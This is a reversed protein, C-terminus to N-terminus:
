GCLPKDSIQHGVQLLGIVHSQEACCRKMTGGVLLWLLKLNDGGRGLTFDAFFAKGNAKKELRVEICGRNSLDFNM